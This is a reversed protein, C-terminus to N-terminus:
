PSSPAHGTRDNERWALDADGVDLRHQGTRRGHEIGGGHRAHLSRGPDDGRRRAALRRDIADVRPEPLQRRFADAGLVRGSQLPVEDQGVAAAHAIERWLREHAQHHRQLEHREPAASRADPGDDDTLDLRHELPAHRRDHRRLAGDACRAVERREGMHRRRHDPLALGEEPSGPHRAALRQSGGAERRDRKAGLLTQRQDVARLEGAGMREGARQLGMPEGDRGEHGPRERDIRRHGGRRREPGLDLFQAAKGALDRRRARQGAQEFAAPDALHM